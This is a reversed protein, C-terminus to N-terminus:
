VIVKGDSDLIDIECNRFDEKPLQSPYIGGCSNKCTDCPYYHNRLMRTKISGKTPHKCEPEGKFCSYYGCHNM